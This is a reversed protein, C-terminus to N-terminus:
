PLGKSSLYFLLLAYSALLILNKKCVPYQRSLVRITGDYCRSEMADYLRGSRQIARILLVSLLSGFSSFSTRFDRNGLRAKQATSISAALEALLFLFRYILLMLEVFLSPCHLWKLVAILDTVPTSLSLFYLCSVAGFATCFLQVAFFLTDQGATLYFNGLPVAYGSLPIKSINIVTPFTSLLLFFFPVALLRIYRAAPIGGVCITLFGATMFTIAAIVISRNWVCIFLTLVTFAFKVGAHKARLNSHYCLTDIEFM